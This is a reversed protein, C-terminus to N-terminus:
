AKRKYANLKGSHIQIFQPGLMTGDTIVLGDVKVCCATQNRIVMSGWQNIVDIPEQWIIVACDFQGEKPRYQVDRFGHKLYPTIDMGFVAVTKLGCKPYLQIVYEYAEIETM